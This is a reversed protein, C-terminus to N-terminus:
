CLECTERCTEAVGELECRSETFEDEVWFCDRKMRKGKKNFTRFALEGDFCDDCLGCTKPCHTDVGDYEDCRELDEEVWECDKWM